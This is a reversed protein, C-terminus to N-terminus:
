GGQAGVRRLANWLMRRTPTPADTHTDESQGIRAGLQASRAEGYVSKDAGHSEDAAQDGDASSAERETVAAIVRSGLVHEELQSCQNGVPKADGEREDIGGFRGGLM